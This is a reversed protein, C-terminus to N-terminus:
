RNPENRDPQEDGGTSEQALRRHARNLLAAPYGERALIQLANRTEAMGERLRYDFTLGASGLDERFHHNSAAGHRNALAALATEHTAVLYFQRTGLLHEVLAVAAAVQETSNTGRFPEDVLGLTLGDDAQPVVMRRLHRVEALFYSEKSALNDAVCLDTMLRLPCLTMKEALAVTGVQALLCNVGCMRLLTSKGAANSGTVVWLRTSRDLHVSNPVAQEPSILPHNGRIISLEEREVITPYCTEFGDRSEYAFCALSCLAELDALASLGSLLPERNPVVRNLIAAAVHLDYFVLLNSLTHFAGGSEAWPLRKCLSPLVDPATVAVLYHRLRGSLGDDPLNEVAHRAAHLCGNAAIFLAKFPEICRRLTERLSRLIMGNFVAILLVAYLWQLEGMGMMILAYSTVAGSILSWSRLVLVLAPRSFPVAGRIAASLADIYADQGRLAAVGAMIRIRESAHHDLWQVAQQRVQIHEVSLCPHDLIDCLRRAGPPTSSRNLLGFVGVPDCFLDLDQREQETLTWVPGDDVAPALAAASDTAVAPRDGCRVLEIRGGCRQLSEGVMLLSRDDLERRERNIRHRKVSWAFLGIFVVAVAGLIWLWEHLLYCLYIGAFFSILRAWSWLVEVRRRRTRQVNLDAQHVLLWDHHSNDM